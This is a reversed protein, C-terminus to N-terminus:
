TPPRCAPSTRRACRRPAGTPRRGRRRAPLQGRFWLIADRTLLYGEALEFHSPTDAAMDTAPYILMQMALPPGGTTAPSSRSSRPSTAAPATAASPSARARRHRAGRRERAVWRTAAVADDVAAPFRHEPALRYDVSSWRAGRSTPSSAACARRAHRPRRHDLRRRPLLRAGAAPRADAAGRPRYLRVRIRRRAPAHSTRSARSRPQRARCSAARRATCRVRRRRTSSRTRRSTRARSANSCRARRRISAERPSARSVRGGRGRDAPRPEGPGHRRGDHEDPPPRRLVALAGRARHRDVRAHPEVVYTNM